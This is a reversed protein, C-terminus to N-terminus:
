SKKYLYKNGKQVAYGMRGGGLGITTGYRVTSSTVITYTNSGVKRPSTFLSDDLYYTDSTIGLESAESKNVFYEQLDSGMSQEFRPGSSYDSDGLGSVSGRTFVRGGVFDGTTTHNDTIIRGGVSGDVNVERAGVVIPPVGRDPASSSFPRSSSSNYESVPKYIVTNNVGGNQVLSIADKNDTYIIYKNNVGKNITVTKPNVIHIVSNVGNNIVVENAATHEVQGVGPKIEARSQPIRENM